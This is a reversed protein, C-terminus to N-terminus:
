LKLTRSNIIETIGDELLCCVLGTFAQPDHVPHLPQV